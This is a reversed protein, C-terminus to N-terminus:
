YEEPLLITTVSRDAETIIWVRTGDNLTYASLIRLNQSLSFENEEKDKDDLDGWDGHWHRQLFEVPEQSNQALAKFAGPTGVLQGIPFKGEESQQNAEKTYIM